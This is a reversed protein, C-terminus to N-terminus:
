RICTPFPLIYMGGMIGRYLCAVIGQVAIYAVIPNLWVLKTYTHCPYTFQAWSVHARATISVKCLTRYLLIARSKLTNVSFGTIISM